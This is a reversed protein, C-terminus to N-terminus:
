LLYSLVWGIIVAGVSYGLNRLRLGLLKCFTEFYDDSDNPEFRGGAADAQYTLVGAILMIGAGYITSM